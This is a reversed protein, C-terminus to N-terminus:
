WRCRSCIPHKGMTKVFDAYRKSRIIKKVSEKLADGLYLEPLFCCPTVKGAATVFICYKVVNCPLSHRQPLYLKLRWKKVLMKVETFLRREQEASIYEASSDVNYVNFLRHLIVADVGAEAALALLGSIRGLNGKYITIDAYVMPRKFGQGDREKIIDKIQPLISQFLQNDYVGFAIERLGSGFVRDIYKGILTGNTTLNTYVGESEAYEIMQFLYPNLLPEGWGHLGTYRFNGSELITKFDDLSLTSDIDNLNGRMCIKCSLNCRRVPEIQLTLPYQRFM